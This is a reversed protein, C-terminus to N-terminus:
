QVFIYGPTELMDLPKAPYKPMCVPQLGDFLQGDRVSACFEMM